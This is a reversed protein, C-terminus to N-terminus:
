DDVTVTVTIHLRTAIDRALMTAAPRTLAAIRRTAWTRPIIVAERAQVAMWHALSM